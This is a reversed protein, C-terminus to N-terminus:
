RTLLRGVVLVIYLNAFISEVVTINKVLMSFNEFPSDIGAITYFSLAYCPMFRFVNGTNELAFEAPVLTELLTYLLSFTAAFLLYICASGWLRYTIEHKESFIDLLMFYLLFIFSIFTCTLSTAYLNKYLVSAPDLGAVAAILVIIASLLLLVLVTNQILKSTTLEKIHRYGLYNIAIMLMGTFTLFIMEWNRFPYRSLIEYGILFTCMFLIQGILILKYGKLRQSLIEPNLLQLSIKM